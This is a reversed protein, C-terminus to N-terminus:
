DVQCPRSGLSVGASGVVWAVVVDFQRSLVHVVVDVAPWCVKWQDILLHEIVEKDGEFDLRLCDQREGKQVQLARVVVTVLDSEESVVHPGDGELVIGRDCGLQGEFQVLEEGRYDLIRLVEALRLTGWSADLVLDLEDLTSDRDLALCPLAIVVVLKEVLKELM